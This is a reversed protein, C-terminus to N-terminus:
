GNKHPLAIALLLTRSTEESVRAIPDGRRKAEVIKDTKEVTPTM